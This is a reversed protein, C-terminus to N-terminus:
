RAGDWEFLNCFLEGQEIADDLANHTHPDDGFLERPMSRKTSDNITARGKAAYLTKMDLARSHGFASGGGYAIAYHYYWLWDFGLPYAVFVRTHGRSVERAWDDLAHMAEGPERGNEELHERSLGSVARADPDWRDSIPKLEAYFTRERPDLRAFRVGDFTAVCALGISVLSYPGPVPGDAEADCSFYLDPRPM